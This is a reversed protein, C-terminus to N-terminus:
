LPTATGREETSTPQSGVKGAALKLTQSKRKRPQKGSPSPLLSYGYATRLLSLIRRDKSHLPVSKGRM